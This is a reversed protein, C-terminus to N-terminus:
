YKGNRWIAVREIMIDRGHYRTLGNPVVAGLAIPGGPSDYLRRDVTARDGKKDDIGIILNAPKVLVTSEVFFLFETEDRISKAATYEHINACLHSVMRDIDALKKDGRRTITKSCLGAAM